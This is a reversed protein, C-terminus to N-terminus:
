PMQIGSIEYLNNALQFRLIYTTVATLGTFSVDGLQSISEEQLISIDDAELSLSATSGELANEIERTRASLHCYLDRLTPDDENVGVDLELTLQNDITLEVPEFALDDGRTLAAAVQPVFGPFIAQFTQQIQQRLTNTETKPRPPINVATATEVDIAAALDFLMEYEAACDPCFQFHQWLEPYQQQSSEESLRADVAQAMFISAADCSIEHGTTGFVRNVASTLHTQDDTM